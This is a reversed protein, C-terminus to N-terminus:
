RGASLEEFTQNGIRYRRWDRYDFHWWEAEYVTFGEAEMARRLLDRLWRQRSTGGAYGPFSRPSMEDYGGTMEVPQGTALDYLTLDVACGRNHRSGTAPNAVFIRLPEPTAEWFMWTVYWPRYGDHILLGYGRARLWRHARILAEAAPRQLFARPSSYFQSGMFNNTSAYRIDLRLAPDLGALEVLDPPRFDGSEVPPTAAAAERRLTAPDRLPTIRFSTGDEPGFALRSFRQGGVVLAIARRDAARRFLTQGGRELALTSDSTPRLGQRTGRWTLLQLSGQDELVSLTDRGDSYEGVLERWAAPAEAPPGGSPAPEGAPSPRCGMLVLLVALQASASRRAIPWSSWPHVFWHVRSWM